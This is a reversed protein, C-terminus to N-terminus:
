RANAEALFPFVSMFISDNAVGDSVGPGVVAGFTDDIVDRSLTRGGCQGAVGLEVALYADCDAISTNILIRDNVLVSALTNADLLANGTVGDLTDLAALNAAMESQFQEAWTDPDNNFNYQDKLGTSELLNILATNIAPRGMRDVQGNRLIACPFGDISTIRNLEIVTSGLEEENNSQFNLTTNDCDAFNFILQGADVSIIDDSDFNPPFMPGSLRQVDITATLGDVEGVGALWLPNGDNDFVYWTAFVRNDSIFELQFGYGPQERNYFAGTTSGNLKAGSLRQTAAYIGLVPDQGSNTLVDTKLGVVIALTNLGLFDNNGPNTFQPQLTAVTQRFATADFFFPDDRLGAFVRIGDNQAIQGVTGSINTAGSFGCTFQQESTFSCSFVDNLSPDTTNSINFQYDIVDSFQSGPGAMPMVTMAMIMESADNPNTFVYLDNIDAAPDIRVQPAEDHDAAFVYFNMLLTFIFSLIIRFQM